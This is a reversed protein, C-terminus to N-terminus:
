GSPGSSIRRSRKATAGSLAFTMAMSAFRSAPAAHLFGAGQLAQRAREVVDPAQAHGAPDALRRGALVVAATRRALALLLVAEDVAVPEDVGPEHELHGVTAAGNPARRRHGLHERLRLRPREVEEEGPVRVAPLAVEPPRELEQLVAQM